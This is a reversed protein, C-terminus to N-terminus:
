GSPSIFHLYIGSLSHSARELEKVKGERRQAGQILM